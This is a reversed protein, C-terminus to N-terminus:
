VRFTIKIIQDKFIILFGFFFVQSEVLFVIESKEPCLIWLRFDHNM